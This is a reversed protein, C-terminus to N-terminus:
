LGEITVRAPAVVEWSLLLNVKGQSPISCVWNLKGDRGLAELDFGSEDAGEWQAVIGEGVHLPLPPKREADGAPPEPLVLAPSILKVSIQSSESVPVADIVKFDSFPTSKTNHITIRQSFTQIRNRSYFGSQSIKTRIPHYVVRVSPDLRRSDILVFLLPSTTSLFRGSRVTLAKRPALSRYTRDPFSVGM